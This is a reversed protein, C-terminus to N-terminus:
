SDILAACIANHFLARLRVVSKERGLHVRNTLLVVTLRHLPDIYLSTGTFGTHGYSTQSLLDGSADFKDGKLVWGLGRKGSAFGPTQLSTALQVSAASLLRRGKLKGGGLWLAAYRSLDRATSFLGAHGCVGGMAHANEDHVIGWRPGSESPYRETAAIRPKLATPPCFRSDIMGLPEFVRSRAAEELPEDFLLAALHGLVIYGLDSYVVQTEPEYDLPKRLIADLMQEKSWGRSHLQPISILGSTHSLLHRISVSAKGQEAFEPLFHHVHDDLRLRGEELLMLILPLTVVVKTLSACDYITDPAAPHPDKEGLVAEGVAHEFWAGNRGVSVVAGPIEGTKVERAVVELALRLRDADMGMQSAAEEM